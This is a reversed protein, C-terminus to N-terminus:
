QFTPTSREIDNHVGSDTDPRFCPTTTPGDEGTVPLKHCLTMPLLHLKALRFSHRLQMRSRRWPAGGVHITCSWSSTVYLYILIGKLMRIIAYLITHQSGVWIGWRGTGRPSTSRLDSAHRPDKAHFAFGLRSECM